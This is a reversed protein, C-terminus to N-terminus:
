GEWGEWRRRVESSGSPRYVSAAYRPVSPPLPLFEDPEKAEYYDGDLSISGPTTGGSSGGSSVSLSQKVQRREPESTLMHPSARGGFDLASEDRSTPSMVIRDPSVGRPTQPRSLRSPDSANENVSRPRRRVGGEKGKSPTQNGHAVLPPSQPKQDDPLNVYDRTDQGQMEMGGIQLHDPIHVPAANPDMAIGVPIIDEDLTEQNVYDRDDPTATRSRIPKVGHVQGIKNQDAYDGDEREDMVQDITEQNEYDESITEVIVPPQPSVM